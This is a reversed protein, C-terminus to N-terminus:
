KTNRHRCLFAITLSGYLLISLLDTIYEYVNIKTHTYFDDLYNPFAYLVVSGLSYFLLGNALWFYEDRFLDRYVEDKLVVYFFYCSIVAMMVDSLLETYGNYIWFGQKYRLNWLSFIIFGINILFWEKRFKRFLDATSFIWIYFIFSVILRINYVWNNTQKLRYALYWGWTEVVITFMLLLIFFWWAGSKKWLMFCAVGLAIWEAVYTGNVLGAFMMRRKKKDLAIPHACIATTGQLSLNKAM